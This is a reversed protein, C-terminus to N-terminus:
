LIVRQDSLFIISYRLFTLTRAAEVLVVLPSAHRTKM